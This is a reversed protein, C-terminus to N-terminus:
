MSRKNIIQRSYLIVYQIASVIALIMSVWLLLTGWVWFSIYSTEFNLILLVIASVQIFLKYKGATDAPIVIGESSAIARLGTVALERGILVIAIWAPIRDFDVLLILASLVLLKDAIPDLLKGLKTIQEWRRALYGDLLDTFSALAFVIAALTPHLPNPPLFLFIFVPILLIRISTLLNPFNM